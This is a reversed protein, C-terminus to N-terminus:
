RKLYMDIIPRVIEDIKEHDDISVWQVELIDEDYGRPTASSIACEFTSKKDTSYVLDTITVHYGTEELIERKCAEELTEGDEVHGGPLNWVIAGRQTKQKVMLVHDNECIIGQSIM